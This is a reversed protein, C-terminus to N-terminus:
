HLSVSATTASLGTAASISTTNVRVETLQKAGVDIVDDCISHLCGIVVDVMKQRVIDQLVFTLDSPDLIM